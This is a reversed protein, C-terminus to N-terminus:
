QNQHNEKHNDAEQGKPKPRRKKRRKVTMTSRQGQDRELDIVTRDPKEKM